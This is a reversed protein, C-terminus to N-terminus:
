DDDHGEDEDSDDDEDEHEYERADDDAYALAESAATATVDIREVPVLVVAPESDRIPAPAAPTSTGPVDPEGVPQPAVSPPHLYGLLAAVTVGVALTTMASAVALAIRTRKSDDNVDTM